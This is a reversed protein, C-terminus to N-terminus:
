NRNIVPSDIMMDCAMTQKKTKVSTKVVQVKM